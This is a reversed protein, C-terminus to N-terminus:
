KPLADLGTVSVAERALVRVSFRKRIREVRQSRRGVKHGHSLIVYARVGDNRPADHALASEHDNNHIVNAPSQKCLFQLTAEIQDLAKGFNGGKLEVLLVLKHGSASRGVFLYDVRKATDTTLWCGDLEICCIEDGARPQVSFRRKHERVASRSSVCQPPIVSSLLRGLLSM